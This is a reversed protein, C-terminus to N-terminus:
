EEEIDKFYEEFDLSTVELHAFRKIRERLKENEKRLEMNEKQQLMIMVNQGDIKERLRTIFEQREKEQEEKMIQMAKSQEIGM